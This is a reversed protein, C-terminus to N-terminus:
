GPSSRTTCRARSPTCRCSRNAGSRLRRPRRREGEATVAADLYALVDELHGAHPSRCPSAAALQDCAAADGDIAAAELEALVDAMASAGLTAASSKMRHSIRAPGEHDGNHPRTEIQEAQPDLQELFLRM